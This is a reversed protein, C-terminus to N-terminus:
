GLLLGGFFPTTPEAFTVTSITLIDGLYPGSDAPLGNQTPVALFWAYTSDVTVDTVFDGNEDLHVTEFFADRDRDVLWADPVGDGTYDNAVQDVRCLEDSDADILWTDATGDLDTDLVNQDFLGDGNEDLVGADTVDDGDLDYLGGTGCFSVAIDEPIPTAAWAATPLAATVAALAAVAATRGLIRRLRTATRTTGM